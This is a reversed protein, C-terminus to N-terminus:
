RIMVACRNWRKRTPIIDYEHNLIITDHDHFVKTISSTTNVPSTATTTTSSKTPDEEKVDDLYDFEDDSWGNSVVEKDEKKTITSPLPQKVEEINYLRLPSSPPSPPLKSKNNELNYSRVPQEKQQAQTNGSSAASTGM